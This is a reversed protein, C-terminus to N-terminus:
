RELFIEIAKGIGNNDNNNTVFDAREKLCDVANGMAVKFADTEFMSMDNTYDGIVMVNKIDIELFEAIEEVSRGKSAKSSSIELNDHWSSSFTVELVKKLLNEVKDFNKRNDDKTIIKFVNKDEFDFINKIEVVNIKENEPLTKNLDMYYAGGFEKETTYLGDDTYFYARLDNDYIIDLVKKVIMSDMKHTKIFEKKESDVIITGNLSSVPIKIELEKVLYDIAQYIRGSAITFYVDNEKAIQIMKKDYPNINKKSNLLTGDIDSVILKKM